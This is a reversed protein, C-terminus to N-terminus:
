LQVKRPHGEHPILKAVLKERKAVAITEYQYHAMEIAM